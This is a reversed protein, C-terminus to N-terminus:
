TGVVAVPAHSDAHARQRRNDFSVGNTVSEEFRNRVDSENTEERRLLDRTVRSATWRGNPQLRYDCATVVPAFM